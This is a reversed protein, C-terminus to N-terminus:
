GERDAPAGAVPLTFFFTSGRRPASEVWLRGGHAEVIGKSISLGLGSGGSRGKWYRDFIHPRDAESIGAGNDAVSIRVMEGDRQARLHVQGQSPTYRLANGVLNSLVQMVRERDARVCPLDPDPDVAIAIGEREAMPAWAFVSDQLLPGIAEPATKITLRGAELTAGTLLDDILRYTRKCSHDVLAVHRASAAGDGASISRGLIQVAMQIGSLMNKLDHAVVAMMGDRANVAARTERLLRANELAIGVREALLEICRQDVDTFRAGGPENGLYLNGVVSSGYRIPVALLAAIAPHYPPYGTFAPHLRADDLRVTTGMDVMARLLGNRGPARGIAEAVGGDVGSYARPGFIDSPYRPTLGVAAFAAQAVWRAQDAIVQLLSTPGQESPDAQAQSIAIWAGDLRELQGRLTRESALAREREGEARKRETIDTFATRFGQPAGREGVMPVSVMQLDLAVGRQTALHIESVVSSQGEVCRRLHAWFPAPDTMRVLSVFPKGVIRGRDRGILTAGTLNIETVIGQADLTFYAIPAFDYLDAYRARSAELASQSERLERNQVELEVQHTQLEHILADREQTSGSGPSAPSM